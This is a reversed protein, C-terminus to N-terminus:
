NCNEPTITARSNSGFIAKIPKMDGVTVNVTGGKIESGSVIIMGRESVTLTDDVDITFSARASPKLSKIQVSLTSDGDKVATNPTLTLSGETTEFPQFVEVGAGAATIDFILKGQSTSLDFNVTIKKLDCKGNNSIIFRDKPAGESFRVEISAQATAAFLLTLGCAYSLINKIM